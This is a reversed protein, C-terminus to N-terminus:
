LGERGDGLKGGGGIAGNNGPYVRGLEEQKNYGGGFIWCTQLGDLKCPLWTGRGMGVLIVCPCVENEGGKRGGVKLKM